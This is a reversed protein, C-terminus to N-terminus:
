ELENEKRECIRNWQCDGCIQTRLGRSLIQIRVMRILERYHGTERESLNLHKLVAQDYRHVKSESICLSGNQNPCATCIEDLESILEIMPDDTELRDKLEVLHSVFDESYGKGEFYNLCMLHHARVSMEKKM